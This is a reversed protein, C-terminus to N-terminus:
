DGVHMVERGYRAQSVQVEEEGLAKWEIGIAKAAETVPVGDFEESTRRQQYFLLYPTTRRPKREDKIVRLPLSSISLKKGDETTIKALKHLQIRAFNADRIEEATHSEVWAKHEGDFKERNEKGQSDLRKM